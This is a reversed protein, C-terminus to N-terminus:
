PRYRVLDLSHEAAVPYPIPSCSMFDRIPSKRAMERNLTPSRIVAGFRGCLRRSKTDKSSGGNEDYSMKLVWEFLIQFLFLVKRLGLLAVSDDHTAILSNAKQFYKVPLIFSYQVAKNKVRSYECVFRNSDIHDNIHFFAVQNIRNARIAHRAYAIQTLQPLYQILKHKCRM